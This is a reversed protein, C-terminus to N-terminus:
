IKPKYLLFMNKTKIKVNWSRRSSSKDQSETSGSNAKVVKLYHTVLIGTPALIKM